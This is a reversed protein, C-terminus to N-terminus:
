RLVTVYGSIDNNIQYFYTGDPLGNANWNNLYPNASFVITNYRDFIVVKPSEFPIVWTDNVSDGNPSIANPLVTEKQCSFLAFVAIFILNRMNHIKVM